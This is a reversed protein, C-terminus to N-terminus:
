ELNRPSFQLFSETCSKQLNESSSRNNQTNRAATGSARTAAARDRIVEERRPQQTPTVCRPVYGAAWGTHSEQQEAYAKGGRNASQKDCPPLLYACSIYLCGIIETPLSTTKERERLSLISLKLRDKPCRHWNGVRFNSGSAKKSSATWSHCCTFM